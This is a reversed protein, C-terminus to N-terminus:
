ASARARVLGRWGDLTFIVLATWIAGFCIIHATTLPEGFALV